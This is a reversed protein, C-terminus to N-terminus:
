CPLKNNLSGPESSPAGSSAAAAAASAGVGSGAPAAAGAAAAAFREPEAVAGGPLGPRDPLAALGHPAAAPGQRSAGGRSRQGNFLATYRNVPM